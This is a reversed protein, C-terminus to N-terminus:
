CKTSYDSKFESIFCEITSISWEALDLNLLKFPWSHPEDAITIHNPVKDYIKHRQQPKPIVQEYGSSKFHVLENRIYILDKIEKWYHSNELWDKGILCSSLENLKSDMSTKRQYAIPGDEALLPPIELEPHQEKYSHLFFSVQNLFAELSCVSLIVASLVNPLSTDRTITQCLTRASMLHINTMDPIEHHSGWGDHQEYRMWAVRKKTEDSDRLAHKLSNEGDKYQKFEENTGGFKNPLYVPEFDSKGCCDIYLKNEDCLCIAKENMAIGSTGCEKASIRFQEKRFKLQEFHYESNVENCLQEVQWLFEKAKKFQKLEVYYAALNGLSTIIDIKNGTIRSLYLDKNLYAIAREYRGKTWFYIGLNCYNNALGQIDGDDLKSKSIDEIESVLEDSQAIEAHRLKDFAINARARNLHELEDHKELIEVSKSWCALAKEREDNSSFARGAEILYMGFGKEDKNREEDTDFFNVLIYDHISCASEIYQLTFLTTAQSTLISFEHAKSISCNELQELIELSKQPLGQHRYGTSLGTIINARLEESITKKQLLLELSQVGQNILKKEHQLVLSIAQEFTSKDDMKAIKKARPVSKTLCCKKYKKGSGCPCIANRGLKSM